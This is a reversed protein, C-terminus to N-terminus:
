QIGCSHSRSMRRLCDNDCEAPTGAPRRLRSEEWRGAYLKGPAVSSRHLVDHANNEPSCYDPERDNDSKRAFTGESREQKHDHGRVVDQKRHNGVGHRRQENLRYRRSSEEDDRHRTELPIRPQNHGPQYPVSNEVGNM